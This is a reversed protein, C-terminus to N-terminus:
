SLSSPPVGYRRRFATAFNTAHRYGAFHAAQQVNFGAQLYSRALELRRDRLYSFLSEGYLTRFKSRLSSPSMSALTALSQLTHEQTPEDRLLNRVLELRQREQPLLAHQRKESVSALPLGHAILQLALGELLLQRQMGQWAHSFGHDLSPLLYGPLHWTHLQFDADEFWRRLAADNDAHERLADTSLSLNLTRLHQGPPQSASLALTNGLRTSMAMGESLLREQQGLRVRVQGQLIVVIFLPTALLSTSEYPELVDIDSATLRIGPRLLFEEVNGQFVTARQEDHPTCNSTLMPFRYAIGYHDGFRRLDFASFCHRTSPEPM